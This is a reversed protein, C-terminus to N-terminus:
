SGEPPASRKTCPATAASLDWPAESVMTVLLQGSWSPLAITISGKWTPLRQRSTPKARATHASSARRRKSRTWDWSRMAHQSTYRAPSPTCASHSAWRARTCDGSAASAVRMLGWWRWRRAASRARKVELRKRATIQLESMTIRSIRSRKPVGASFSTRMRLATSAARKWGPRRPSIRGATRWCSPMGGSAVTASCTPDPKSLFPTAAKRSASARAAEFGHPMM